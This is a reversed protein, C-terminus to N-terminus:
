SYIWILSNGHQCTTVQKESNLLFGAFLKRHYENISTFKKLDGIVEGFNTRLNQTIEQYSGQEHDWGWVTPLWCWMACCERLVLSTTLLPPYSNKIWITSSEQWIQNFWRKRKQKQKNIHSTLHRLLTKLVIENQLLQKLKFSSRTLQLVSSHALTSLDISVCLFTRQEWIDGTVMLFVWALPLPCVM